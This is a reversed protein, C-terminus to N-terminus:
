GALEGGGMLSLPLCFAIAAAGARLAFYTTRFQAEITLPM